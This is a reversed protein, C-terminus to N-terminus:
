ATLWVCGVGIAAVASTGLLWRYAPV